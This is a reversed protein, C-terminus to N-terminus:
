AKAAAAKNVRKALRSQLRAAKNKHIIGRKQTRAVLAQTDRLAKKQDDGGEMTILNKVNTRLTAKASRNRAEDRANTKVRKKASKINPL